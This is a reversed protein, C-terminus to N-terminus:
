IKFKSTYNQNDFEYKKTCLLNLFNTYKLINKYKILSDKNPLSLYISKINLLKEYMEQLIILLQMSVILYNILQIQTQMKKTQPLDEVKQVGKEKVIIDHHQTLHDNKETASKEIAEDM